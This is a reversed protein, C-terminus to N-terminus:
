HPSAKDIRQLCRDYVERTGPLLLFYAAKFRLEGSSPTVAQNVTKALKDKRLEFQADDLQRTEDLADALKQRNAEKGASSTGPSLVGTLRDLRTLIEQRTVPWFRPPCQRCTRLLDLVQRENQQEALRPSGAVDLPPVFAGFFGALVTRQTNTLVSETATALRVLRWLGDQGYLAQLHAADALRQLGASAAVPETDKSPPRPPQHCTVCRVGSGAPTTRLTMRVFETEVVRGRSARDRLGPSIPAGNLLRDRLELWDARVTALEPRMSDTFTPPRPVAEEMERALSRLKVTQRRTLNLANILNLSSLHASLYGLEHLERQWDYDARVLLPQVTLMLFSVTLLTRRIM